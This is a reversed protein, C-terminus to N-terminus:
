LNVKQCLCDLKYLDLASISLRKLIMFKLFRRFASLVPTVLGLMNWRKLRFYTTLLNSNSIFHESIRNERLLKVMNDISTEVKQLFVENEDLGEHYLSNDIHEVPIQHIRLQEGFFTDEFGYTTLSEDFECVDFVSRAILLNFPTFSRYPSLNRQAASKQERSRGYKWRLKVSFDPVIDHYSVGGLVAFPQPSPGHKRAIQVYQSIFDPYRVAADCDMFILYPYQAKHALHNRVKSRGLNTENQIYSVEGYNSLLKNAERIKLDPSADDEILIEFPINLQRTQSLLVSVLMQLRVNYVPILISLM